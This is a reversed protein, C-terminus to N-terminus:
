HKEVNEGGAVQYLKMDFDNLVNLVKLFWHERMMRVGRISPKLHRKSAIVLELVLL